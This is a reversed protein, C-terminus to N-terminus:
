VIFSDLGFCEDLTFPLYCNNGFGTVHSAYGSM